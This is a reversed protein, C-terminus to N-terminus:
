PTEGEIQSSRHAVIDLGAAAAPYHDARFVLGLLSTGGALVKVFDAQAAEDIQSLAIQALRKTLDLPRDIEHQDIDPYRHCSRCEFKDSRM